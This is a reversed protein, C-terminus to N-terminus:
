TLDAAQWHVKRNRILIGTLFAAGLIALEIGAPEPVTTISGGGMILYTKFAQLDANNFIGDSNLDGITTVQSNTLGGHSQEYGSLDTLAQQM